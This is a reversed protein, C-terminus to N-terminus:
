YYNYGCYDNYPNAIDDDHEEDSNADGDHVLDEWYAKEGNTAM